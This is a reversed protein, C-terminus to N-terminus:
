EFFFNETYYKSNAAIIDNFEQTGYEECFTPTDSFLDTGLGLRDGEIKCGMASLTTPLMDLTCFQRNKTNDTSAKANIFCNYVKREYNPVINSEIFASDMTPHDGSIIITTNEYFDQEQIWNVFELAQRSACALVNEYQVEYDNTCYECVYGDVHHSDVTLMTLAFPQDQAALKPLEQKAYEYLYLDEMGWWVMYDEPVIGDARATFLDYIKDTGHQEFYQKRGGFSADSGVMLAQYYGNEHLLDSLTNVGPLFEDQGYDNGGMDLPTKLPIGATHSVLGGVTWTAGSLAAYGGVDENHSFNINEQALTYLEPIPTVDNGGGVEESLFTTEMSELYIYILNQKQSPFTINAELPDVYGEEYITSDQLIFKLFNILDVQTAASYLLGATIALSAIVSVLRKFPYLSIKFKDRFHLVIKRPAKLFLIVVVIATAVVAPVLADNIFSTILDGETNGLDSLLTYLIADFGLNGYVSIYWRAANFSIFGILIALSCLIISFIGKKSKKNKM